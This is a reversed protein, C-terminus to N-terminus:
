RVPEDFGACAAEDEEAERGFGMVLALGGGVLYILGGAWVVDSVFHGGQLIRAVGVLSGFSLGFVLFGAAIARKNKRLVFWPAITFFAIAAHGSPFSSNNGASGPQWFQTFEHSGGFEIVERPRARGLQDKLLVNVVLGPGLALLLLVFVTKRRCSEVKRIFFGSVLVILATVALVFAPFPAWTYLINWPLGSGAPWFKTGVPSIKNPGLVASAIYSDINTLWLVVTALLLLGAVAALEILRKKLVYEPLHSM